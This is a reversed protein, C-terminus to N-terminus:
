NGAMVQQMDVTTIAEMFNGYNHKLVEFLIKFLAGYNAAFVEDFKKADIMIGNVSTSSLLDLILQEVEVKDTADVLAEVAVQMPSKGELVDGEGNAAMLAPGILKTLRKLYNFGKMGAFSTILYQSGNIEVEKQTLAM